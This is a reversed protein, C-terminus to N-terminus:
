AGTCSSSQRGPPAGSRTDVLHPVVVRDDVMAEAILPDRRWKYVTDGAQVLTDKGHAEATSRIMSRMYSQYKDPAAEGTQEVVTAAGINAGERMFIKQCAISILAGASAANNDIFVHVPIPSYLVATRMSDAAELLGGYTNMHLLVADAELARAEALGNRLYLWTTNDIERRIDIAYVLARGPEAARPSVGASGLLAVVALARLWARSLGYIDSMKLLILMPLFARGAKSKIIRLEGQKDMIIGINARNKLLQLIIGRVRYEVKYVPIM